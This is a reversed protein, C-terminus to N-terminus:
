EFGGAAFALAHEAAGCRVESEGGAEEGLDADNADDAFVEEGFVFGNEGGFADVGRADIVDGALAEV